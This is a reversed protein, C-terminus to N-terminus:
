GSGVEGAAEALGGSGRWVLEDHLLADFAGIGQQVAGVRRQEVDSADTSEGVLAMHGALKAFANAHGRAM